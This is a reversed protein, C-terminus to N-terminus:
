FKELRTNLVPFRRRPSLKDEEVEDEKVNVNNNDRGSSFLQFLKFTNNNYKNEIIKHNIIQMQLLLGQLSLVIADLISMVPHSEHYFYKRKLRIASAERKRHLLMQMTM